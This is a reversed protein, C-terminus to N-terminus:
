CRYLRQTSVDRATPGFPTERECRDLAGACRFLEVGNRTVTAEVEASAGSKSWLAKSTKEKM